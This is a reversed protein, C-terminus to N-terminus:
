ANKEYRTQKEKIRRKFYEPFQKEQESTITEVFFNELYGMQYGNQLLNQSFELDQMGHLFDDESWRWTKYADADVFHVLGGLHKTM